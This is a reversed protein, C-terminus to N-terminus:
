GFIVKLQNKLTEKQKKYEKYNKFFYNNNLLNNDQDSYDFIFSYDMPTLIPYYPKNKNLPFNKAFPLKSYYAKILDEKIPKNHETKQWPEEFHTLQSLTIADLDIYNEVIFNILENINDSFTIQKKPKPIPKSNLHKYKNYIDINVPGHDWKYFDEEILSNNAILSWVKVYYLLKQLKIPTIQSSSNQFKQLIYDAINFIEIKSM